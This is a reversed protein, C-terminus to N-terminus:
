CTKKSSKLNLNDALSARRSTSLAVKSDMWSVSLVGKLLREVVLEVVTLKM